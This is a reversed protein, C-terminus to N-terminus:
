QEKLMEFFTELRTLTRGDLSGPRDGELTLIPIDLSERLLIDHIQRHCFTQTYHILGQLRRRGVARRIDRIRGEMGYPYTYALYRDVLEGAPEILSFQRQVENFVIRAGFGEVTEYLDDFIPPVGVYGIRLVPDAPLRAAARDLFADLKEEYAQPNSEFDSSSVLFEHNERGHVLDELYTMRDLRRLKERIRDLRLQARDVRDWSTCLAKRLRDIARYLADRDRDLPYDFRHVSVGRRELIEAMAVTNSCDGGTVAIVRDMGQELVVGYIGKIWACVTRPFGDTEAIELLHEPHPHTIFANNLDVPRFGAAYVVEVPITTTIGILFFAREPHFSELVPAAKSGVTRQLGTM